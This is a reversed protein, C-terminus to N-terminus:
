EGRITRSLADVAAQQSWDPGVGLQEIGKLLASETQEQARDCLGSFTEPDLTDRAINYFNRQFRSSNMLRVLNDISHVKAIEVKNKARDANIRQQELNNQRKLEAALRDEENKQKNRETTGNLYNFRRIAESHLAQQISLAGIARREWEEDGESRFELQAKMGRINQDLKDIIEQIDKISRIERIDERTLAKQELRDLVESM